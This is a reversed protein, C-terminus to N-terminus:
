GGGETSDLGLAAEPTRGNREGWADAHRGIGVKWSYQWPGNDPFDPGFSMDLDIRLYTLSAYEVEAMERVAKGLAADKKFQDENDIMQEGQADLARIM